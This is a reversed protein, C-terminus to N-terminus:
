EMTERKRQRQNRKPIVLEVGGEAAFRSHILSGLGKTGRASDELAESLIIRAEEEMSRNHSAARVRLRTKVQDDLNRITIVAM